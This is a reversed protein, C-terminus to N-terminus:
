HNEPKQNMLPSDVPLVSASDMLEKNFELWDGVFGQRFAADTDWLVTDMIELQVTKAKDLTDIKNLHGDFCRAEMEAKIYALYTKVNSTSTM